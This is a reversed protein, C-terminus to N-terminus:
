ESIEAFGRDELRLAVSRPLAVEDNWDYTPSTDDKGDTGNHVNGHGKKTIRVMVLGEKPSTLAPEPPPGGRKLVVGAALKVDPPTPEPAKAGRIATEATVINPDAPM